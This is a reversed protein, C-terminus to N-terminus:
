INVSFYGMMEESLGSMGAYWAAVGVSVVRFWWEDGIFPSDMSWRQTIM